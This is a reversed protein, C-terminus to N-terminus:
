KNNDLQNNITINLNIFIKKTKNINILIRYPRITNRTGDTIWEKKEYEGQPIRIKNPNVRCMIIVPCEFFNAYYNAYNIEPSVYTGEECIKYLNQSKPNINICNKCKQGKAGEKSTSFFKGGEECIPKVASKSTGHFAVAWENPNNNTAIWDNNGNDYEDLVKLGYGVWNHTPPNYTLGGRMQQTDEKWDSPDKNGREDLMDPTLKCAELINKEYINKIENLKSFNEMKERINQNNTNKFVVDLILILNGERINAIIIDNKPIEIHKSLLGKFEDIFKEQEGDENNIIAYKKNIYNIDKGDEVHIEYKNEQLMGSSIIQNIIISEDNKIDRKDIAVEIGMNELSKGLQGLVLLKKNNEKNNIAEEVNIFNEPHEKKEKEIRKKCDYGYQITLEHNREYTIVTNTDKISSLIENKLKTSNAIEEESESYIDEDMLVVYIEKDPDTKILESVTMKKHLKKGNSFFVLQKININIEEAYKKCVDKMKQDLDCTIEKEDIDASLFTLTSM